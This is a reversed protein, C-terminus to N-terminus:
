FFSESMVYIAHHPTSTEAFGQWALWDIDLSAHATDKRPQQLFVQILSQPPSFGQRAEEM